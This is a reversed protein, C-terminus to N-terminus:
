RNGEKPTTALYADLRQLEPGIGLRATVADVRACAEDHAGRASEALAIGTEEILELLQDQDLRDFARFATDPRM